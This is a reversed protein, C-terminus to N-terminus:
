GGSPVADPVEYREDGIRILNLDSEKRTSFDGSGGDAQSWDSGTPRGGEFFLIRKRGDPLSVVVTATGGGDRAVGIACQTTPQGKHQACPIAGRADFAGRGARLASDERKATTAAAAIDIDLQFRATEGSQAPGRMLYVRIRYEGDKPLPGSFRNGAMSGNFFAVDTEGPAILNFHSGLNDTKLGVTMVQGARARLLYDVTQRGHVQGSVKAGSAGPAFRVQETRIDTASAPDLGLALWHLSILLFIIARM